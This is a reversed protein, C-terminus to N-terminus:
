FFTDESISVLDTTHENLIERTAPYLVVYGKGM